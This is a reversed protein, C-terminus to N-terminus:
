ITEEEKFVKNSQTTWGYVRGTRVDQSDMFFRFHLQPSEQEESPRSMQKYHRLWVLEVLTWGVDPLSVLALGPAFSGM